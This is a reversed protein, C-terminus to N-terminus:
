GCARKAGPKLIHDKLPKNKLSYPRMKRLGSFHLRDTNDDAGGFPHISITVNFPFVSGCNGRFTRRIGGQFFTTAGAQKWGVNSDPTRECFM